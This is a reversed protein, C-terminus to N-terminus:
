LLNFSSLLDNFIKSDTKYQATSGSNFNISYHKSNYIFEYKQSIDGLVKFVRLNKGGIDISSILSLKSQVVSPSIFNPDKIVDDITKYNAYSIGNLSTSVLVSIISANNKLTADLESLSSYANAINQIEFNSDGQGSIIPSQWDTPYDVSYGFEINKYTKISINPQSSNNTKKQETIPSIKVPETSTNQKLQNIQDQLKTIESNNKEKEQRILQNVQEDSYKNTCGSLMIALFLVPLIILKKM